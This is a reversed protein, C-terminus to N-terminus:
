FNGRLRPVPLPPLLRFLDETTLPDLRQFGQRALRVSRVACEKELLYYRNYAQRLENIPGLDLGSLYTMWRANFREISNALARLAEELRRPSHTVSIAIRLKPTLLLALNQLVEVQKKDALYTELERWQGALAALIGLRMRVMPLWDERRQRCHTLLQDLGDQVARARRIYAPADYHGLVRNFIQDEEGRGLIPSDDM